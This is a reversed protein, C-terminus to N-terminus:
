RQAVKHIAARDLAARLDEASSHTYRETQQMSAHRMLRQVIPASIGAAFLRRPFGHRLAHLGASPISLRRLLPEWHRARLRDAHWPRGSRTAFLLGADNKRWVHKYERLLLVLEPLMPLTAASSRSKLPFIQGRQTSEAITLRRARLDLREWTLALAESVRLGALGMIAYAARHPFDSAELIRTLEGATIYRPERVTEITAPLRVLRADIVQADHGDIRAARLITLLVSRIGMVTSRACGAARRHALADRIEAVGIRALPMSGLEPVLHARVTTVYRRRTSPRLQVAHTRLWHEMFMVATPSSSAATILDPINRAIWADAARRAAAESRLVNFDGLNISRRAAGENTRLRLRYGCAGKVITGRRKRNIVVGTWRDM